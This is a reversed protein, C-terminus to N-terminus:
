EKKLHRRSSCELVHRARWRPRGLRNPKMHVVEIVRYRADLYAVAIPFRM